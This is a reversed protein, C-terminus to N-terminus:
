ASRVMGAVKCEKPKFSASTMIGWTVLVVLQPCLAQGPPSSKEEKLREGLAVDGVQESGVVLARAPAPAKVVDEQLREGM